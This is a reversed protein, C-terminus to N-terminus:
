RKLHGFMLDEEPIDTFAIQEEGFIFQLSGLVFHKINNAKAFRILDKIEEITLHDGM